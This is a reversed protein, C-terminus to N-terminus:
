TRMGCAVLEAGADLLGNVMGYIHGHALGAAAFRFEGPLVTPTPKPPLHLEM